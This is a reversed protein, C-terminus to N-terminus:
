DITVIKYSRPYGALRVVRLGNTVKGPKALVTEVYFPDDVVALSEVEGDSVLALTTMKKGFLEPLVAAQAKTFAPAATEFSVANAMPPVILFWDSKEFPSVSVTATDGLAIHSILTGLQNRIDLLTPETSKECAIPLLLVSLVLLRLRM